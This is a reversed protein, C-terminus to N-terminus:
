YREDRIETGDKLIIFRKDGRYLFYNGEEDRGWREYIFQTILEGDFGILAFKENKSVVFCGDGTSEGSFKFDSLFDYDIHIILQNLSDVMGIKNDLRVEFLKSSNYYIGSMYTYMFPILERGVHDIVGFLNGQRVIFLNQGYPYNVPSDFKPQVLIRFNSDMLGYKLNSSFSEYGYLMLHNYDIEADMICPLVEEGSKRVVGFKNNMRVTVYDNWVEKVKEYKYDVILTGTSDIFGYRENYKVAIFNKDYYKLNQYIPKVIEKGTTDMIGELSGDRIMFYHGTMGYDIYSYKFPVLTDGGRNILGYKSNSGRVIGYKDKIFRVSEFSMPIVENGLYDLIGYRGDKRVRFDSNSEQLVDDYIIQFVVNGLTDVLGWKGAVSVKFFYHQSDGTNAIFLREIADYKPTILKKGSKSVVGFKGSKKVIFFEGTEGSNYFDDYHPGIIEVGDRGIAVAKGLRYAITYWNNGNMFNDLPIESDYIAECIIKGTSDILGYKSDHKFNSFGYDELDITCIVSLFKTPVVVTGDSRCVGHFSGKLVNILREAYYYSKEIKDYIAPSIQKGGDYIFGWKSGIRYCYQYEGLSIVADFKAPQIIELNENILGWKLGQRFRILNSQSYMSQLEDFIFEPNSVVTSDYKFVGWKKGSRVFYVQTKKYNELAGHDAPGFLNQVYSVEDFQPSVLMKGTEGIIGFKGDVAVRIERNSAYFFVEDYIPEFLITGDKKVLGQKGNKYTIARTDKEFRAVSDYILPVIEEGVENIYGYKGDLSVVMLRHEAPCAFEDLQSDLYDYKPAVLIDGNTTCLGFKGDKKVVLFNRSHECSLRQACSFILDFGLPLLWESKGNVLGFQDGKQVIFRDYPIGYLRKISHYIPQVIIDDSSNKIGKMGNKEFIILELHGRDEETLFDWPADHIGTCYPGPTAYSYTPQPASYLLFGSADPPYYSIALHPASTAKIYYYNGVASTPYPVMVGSSDNPPLFSNKELNNLSNSKELRLYFIVYQEDLFISTDMSKYNDFGDVHIQYVSPTLYSFIVSGNEATTVSYLPVGYRRVSVSVDALSGISDSVVVTLTLLSDGSISNAHFNQKELISFGIPSFGVFFVAVFFIRVIKKM